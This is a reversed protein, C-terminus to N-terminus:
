GRATVARYHALEAAYQRRGWDRMENARIERSVTSPAVALERAIARVGLPEALARAAQIFSRDALTLRRYSRGSDPAASADMAVPGVGGVRGSNLQMGALRAWSRVTNSAVGLM